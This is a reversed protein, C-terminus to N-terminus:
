FSLGRPGALPASQGPRPHPEGPAEVTRAPNLLGPVSAPVLPQPTVLVELFVRNREAPGPLAPSRPRPDRQAAAAAETLRLPSGRGLRGSPTTHSPRTPHPHCLGWRPMAWRVAGCTLHGHWPGVSWQGWAHHRGRARRRGSLFCPALQGARSPGAAASAVACDAPIVVGCLPWGPCQLARPAPALSAPPGGAPAPGPPAGAVDPCCSWRAPPHQPPRVAPGAKVGRARDQAPTERWRGHAPAQTRPVRGRPGSGCTRAALAGLLPVVRM